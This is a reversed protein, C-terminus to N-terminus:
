HIHHDIFQELSKEITDKFRRLVIGLRINVEIERDGIGIEGDLGRRKIEMQRDSKWQCDVELIDELHSVLHSLTEKVEEQSM